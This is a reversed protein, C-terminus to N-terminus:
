ATRFPAAARRAHAAHREATQEAANEASARRMRLWPGLLAHAVHLCVFLTFAIGFATALLDTM